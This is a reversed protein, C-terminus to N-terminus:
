LVNVSKWSSLSPIFSFFLLLSLVIKKGRDILVKKRAFSFHQVLQFTSWVKSELLLSKTSCYCVAAPFWFWNRTLWKYYYGFTFLFSRFRCVRLASNSFCQLLPRIFFCFYTMTPFKSFLYIWIGKKETEFKEHHWPILEFTCLSQSMNVKISKVVATRVLGIWILVGKAYWVRFSATTSAHPRLLVKEVDVVRHCTTSLERM